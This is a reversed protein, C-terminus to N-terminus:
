KRQIRRGADLTPHPCRSTAPHRGGVRYKGRGRLNIAVMSAMQALELAGRKKGVNAPDDRGFTKRYAKAIIKAEDEPRKSRLSIPQRAMISGVISTIFTIDWPEYTLYRGFEQRVDYSTVCQGKVIERFEKVVQEEPLGDYLLMTDLGHAEAHDLKTKGLYKPEWQIVAEYESDFDGADLDVSCVGISLVEDYPYGNDGDAIIEVVYLREGM